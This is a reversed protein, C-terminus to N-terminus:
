HRYHYRPAPESRMEISALYSGARQPDPDIRLYGYSDQSHLLSPHYITAGKSLPLDNAFLDREADTITISRGERYAEVVERRITERTRM